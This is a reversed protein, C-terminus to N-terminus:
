VGGDIAVWKGKEKVDIELIPHIEWLTARTAHLIKGAHNKRNHLQEPHEQDFTRWGRIRVQTGDKHAKSALKPWDPHDNLLRPSIEVVMSKAQKEKPNAVLWMHYDRHAPDSCNCSEEDELRPKGALYGIVEIGTAEKKVLSKREEPKWKDRRRKGANLAKPVDAASAAVTTHTYFDPPVDRNKLANLYPDTVSTDTADGTAPCRETGFFGSTHGILSPDDQALLAAPWISLVVALAFRAGQMYSTLSLM